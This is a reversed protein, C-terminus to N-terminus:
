CFSDASLNEANTLTLTLSRDTKELNENVKLVLKDKTATIETAVWAAGESVTWDSTSTVTVTYEGGEANAVVEANQLTFVPEADDESCGCFLVVTFLLFLYKLKM